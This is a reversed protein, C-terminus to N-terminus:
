SGDLRRVMMQVQKHGVWQSGVPEFGLRSHFSLSVDNRPHLNVECAVRPRDQDIAWAIFAEYLGRGMGRRACASAIVVRDVYAFRSYRQGFWAYNCSNYACDEVLGLLFGVPQGAQVVVRTWPSIALLDELERASLSNVAPVAENNLKLLCQTWEVRPTGLSWRPEGTGVM